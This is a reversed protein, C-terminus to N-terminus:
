IRPSPHSGWRSSTKGCDYIKERLFKQMSKRLHPIPQIQVLVQMVWIYEPFKTSESRRQIGTTTNTNSNSSAGALTYRPNPTEYDRSPSTNRFNDQQRTNRGTASPIFTTNPDIIEFGYILDQMALFAGVLTYSKDIKSPKELFEKMKAIADQM